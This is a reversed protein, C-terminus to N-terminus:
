DYNLIISSLATKIRALELPPKFFGYYHGQPDILVVNASHDVTYGDDTDVKMHAIYLNEALANIVASEGTLGVFAENFFPVYEALTDVTDREPDLTVMLVQTREAIESDLRKYVQALTALTTPCIDPCHTFGFFALSWKGEIESNAFTEGKHTVLGFPAIIRPSDFVVVGNIRLEEDSMIRPSLMKNTFLVLIACIISLLVIITNRIGKKQAADRSPNATNM